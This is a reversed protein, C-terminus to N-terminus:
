GKLNREAWLALGVKNEVNLKARLRSTYSKITELGLGLQAAIQPYTKNALIGRLVELERPSLKPKSGEVATEGTCHRRSEKAAPNATATM